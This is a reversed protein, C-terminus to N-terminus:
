PIGTSKRIGSQTRLSLSRLRPSTLAPPSSRVGGIRRVAPKIVYLLIYIAWQRIPRGLLENRYSAIEEPQDGLDVQSVSSQHRRVQIPRYRPTCGPGAILPEECFSRTTKSKLSSSAATSAAAPINVAFNRDLNLGLISSATLLYWKSPDQLNKRSWDRKPERHGTLVLTGCETNVLYFPPHSAASSPLLLPPLLLPPFYDVSSSLRLRRHLLSPHLTPSHPPSPSSSSLPSVIASTFLPRTALSTSSLPCQCPCMVSHVIPHKGGLESSNVPMVAQNVLRVSHYPQRVISGGLALSTQTKHLPRDCVTQLSPARHLIQSHGHM